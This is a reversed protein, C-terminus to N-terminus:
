DFFDNFLHVLSGFILQNNQLTYGDATDHWGLHKKGNQARKKFGGEKFKIRALGFTSGSLRIM